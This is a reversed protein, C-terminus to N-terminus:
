LTHNTSTMSASITSSGTPVSTCVCDFDPHYFPSVDNNRTNIVPGANQAPAWQGNALKYTYYIDSLGFGGIRDSAFYLTDETHSLSPHSDWSLSNVSFGLNKVEGWTSDPQLKASFLDCDGYCDLCDCRSFYLTSGDKSFIPRDKM